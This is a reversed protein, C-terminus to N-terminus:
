EVKAKRRKRASRAPAYDQAMEQRLCWLAWAVAYSNTTWVASESRDLEGMLLDRGDAVLTLGHGLAQRLRPGHPHVVVAIDGADYPVPSVLLIRVKRTKTQRLWPLLEDLEDDDGVLVALEQEAREIMQRAQALVNNRGAVNWTQGPEASDVVLHKFGDALRDLTAEFEHRMQDVLLDAPVAAYRVMEGFSQTFVAGRAVLKGLVEYIMSRPIGSDKAIQYGTAPSSGQLAIYAKAEYETFGAAVLHDILDRM